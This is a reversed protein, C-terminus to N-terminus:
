EASSVKKLFNSSASVMWAVPERVPVILKYGNKMRHDLAQPDYVAFNILVEPKEDVKPGVLWESVLAGTFRQLEKVFFQENM